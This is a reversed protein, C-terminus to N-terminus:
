PTSHEIVSVVSDIWWTLKCRYKFKHRRSNKKARTDYTQITLIYVYYQILSILPYAQAEFLFPFDRLIHDSKEFLPWVFHEVKLVIAESSWNESFLNYLFFKLQNWKMLTLVAHSFQSHYKMDQSSIKICLVSCIM